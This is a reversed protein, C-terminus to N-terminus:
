CKTTSVPTFIYQNLLSLLVLDGATAGHPRECSDRLTESGFLILRCWELIDSYCMWQVDNAFRGQFTIIYHKRELLTTNLEWKENYLELPLLLGSSTAAGGVYRHTSAEWGHMLGLILRPLAIGRGVGRSQPAVADTCGHSSLIQSISIGFLLIIKKKRNNQEGSIM